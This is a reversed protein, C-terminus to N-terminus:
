IPRCMADNKLRIADNWWVPDGTGAADEAEAVVGCFMFPAATNPM